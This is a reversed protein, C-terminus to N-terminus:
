GGHLVLSGREYQGEAGCIRNARDANLSVERREGGHSTM